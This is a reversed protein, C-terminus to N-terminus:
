GNSYRNASTSNWFFNVVILRVLVNALKNELRVMIIVQSPNNPRAENVASCRVFSIPIRFTNPAVSVCIVTKSELFKEKRIAMENTMILGSVYQNSWVQNCFKAYLISM